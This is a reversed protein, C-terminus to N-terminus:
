QVGPDTRSSQLLASFLGQTLDVHNGLLEFLEERGIQLATGPQKVLVRFGMSSGALTEYIGLADGPVASRPNNGEPPELSLEGRLVVLISPPDSEGAIQKGSVLPVERVISALELLEEATARRFIPLEQIVLAKDIPKLSSSSGDPRATPYSKVTGKAIDPGQNESRNTLLLRFLGHALEINDSLLARFDEAGLALCISDELARATEQLPIGKLVELFGLITPPAIEEEQRRSGSLQVKGEVLLQIYEVPAGEQQLTAGTDHRVQRAIASIRFLEDVSAYRFLPIMKLDRAIVIAPVPPLLEFQM